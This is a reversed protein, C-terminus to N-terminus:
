VDTQVRGLATYTAAEETERGAEEVAVGGEDHEEASDCSDARGDHEVHDHALDHVYKLIEIINKLFNKEPSFRVHKRSEDLHLSVLNSCPSM